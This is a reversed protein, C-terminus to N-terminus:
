SRCYHLNVNTCENSPERLCVVDFAVICIEASIFERRTAVGASNKSSCPDKEIKSALIKLAALTVPKLSHYYMTICVLLCQSIM